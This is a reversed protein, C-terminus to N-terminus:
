SPFSSGLNLPKSSLQKRAEMGTSIGYVVHLGKSHHIAPEHKASTFFKGEYDAGSADFTCRLM